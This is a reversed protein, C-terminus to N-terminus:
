RKKFLPKGIKYNPDYTYVEPLHQVESDNKNNKITYNGSDLDYYLNKSDGWVSVYPGDHKYSEEEITSVQDPYNEVFHKVLDDGFISFIATLGKSDTLFYRRFEEGKKFLLLSIDEDPINPKDLKFKGDKLM